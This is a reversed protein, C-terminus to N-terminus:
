NCQSQALTFPGLVPASVEVSASHYMGDTPFLRNDRSDYSITGRLSSIRGTNNLAASILFMPVGIILMGIVCTM